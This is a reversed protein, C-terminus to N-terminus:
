LCSSSNVNQLQRASIKGKKTCLAFMSKQYGGGGERGRLSFKLTSNKQCSLSIKFNLIHLRCTCLDAKYLISEDFNQFRDYLFWFINQKIEMKPLIVIINKKIIESM